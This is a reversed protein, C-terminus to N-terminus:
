LVLAIERTDEDAISNVAKQLEILQCLVAPEYYKEFGGWTDLGFSIQYNFEEVVKLFDKLYKSGVGSDRLRKVRNIKAEVVNQM